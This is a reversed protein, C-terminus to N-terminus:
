KLSLNNVGKNLPNKTVSKALNPPSIRLVVVSNMKCGLVAQYDEFKWLKSFILEGLQILDLLHKL